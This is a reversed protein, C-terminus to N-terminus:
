CYYVPCRGKKWLWNLLIEIVGIDKISTGFTRSGISETFGQHDMKLIELNDPVCIQVKWGHHERNNKKSENEAVNGFDHCKRIILEEWHNTMMTNRRHIIWFTMSNNSYTSWKFARFLRESKLWSPTAKPQIHKEKCPWFHFYAKPSKTELKRWLSSAFDMNSRRVSRYHDMKFSESLWAIACILFIALSCLDRLSSISGGLKMTTYQSRFNIAFVANVNKEQGEEKGDNILIFKITGKWILADDSRRAWYERSKGPTWCNDSWLRSITM